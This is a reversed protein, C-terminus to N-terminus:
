GIHVSSTIVISLLPCSKIIRSLFDHFLSKENSQLISEANDFCLLFRLNVGHKNSEKKNSLKLLEDKQQFFSELIEFLKENGANEINERM